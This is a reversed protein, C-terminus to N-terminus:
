DVTMTVENPLYGDKSAVVKYKEGNVMETKLIITANGLADTHGEAVVNDGKYILIKAQVPNTTLSIGTENSYINEVSLNIQELQKPIAVIQVETPDSEKGTTTDKVLVKVPDQGPVVKKPDVPIELNGESNTTLPNGGVTWNNGADKTAEVTTNDPM